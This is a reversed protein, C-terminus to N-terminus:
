GVQFSLKVPTYDGSIALNLNTGTEWASKTDDYEIATLKLPGLYNWKDTNQDRYGAGVMSNLYWRANVTAIKLPM